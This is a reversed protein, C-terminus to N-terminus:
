YVEASTVAPVPYITKRANLPTPIGRSQTSAAHPVLVWGKSCGSESEAIFRPAERL